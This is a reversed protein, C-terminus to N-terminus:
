KGAKPKQKKRRQNVRRWYEKGRPARRKEHGRACALCHRTGNKAIRTNETTFEHGNVCHTQSKRKSDRRAHCLTCVVQVEYHHEPAYGKFHDYEHRRCGPTHVHGCDECPLSNPHARRGTRVEVNIRQRAQKRDGDRPPKPAPGPRGTTPNNGFPM